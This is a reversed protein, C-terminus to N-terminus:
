RGATSRARSARRTQWDPDNVLIVVTKGRVDLGDYDNWGREPANIGYGVFVIESNAVAVRPQARYSAGVFDTRYAFSLGRGTAPSRSGRAARCRHDRGAARGPVLQRQQRAAARRARVGAALLAVTRKEGETGPARGQFADSSLTQTVRQLTPWRSKRRRGARRARRSAAPSCRRPRAAPLSARACRRAGLPAPDARARPLARPPRRLRAGAGGIANRRGNRALLAPIPPIIM